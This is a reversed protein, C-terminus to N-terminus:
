LERGCLHAFECFRCTALNDTKEFVFQKTERLTRLWECLMELKTELLNEYVITGNKLDYYGCRSVNGMQQALLYYFELQFDTANEVTKPTYVPFKGSKYDLVELGEMTRDIRDLQGTLSIGEIIASLSVECGAVEAEKFREIENEFFPELRRMWLKRLYADLVTTGSSRELAPVFARLLSEKDGFRSTETYLERLAEHLATGIEHEEPMDKAIEHERLGEAYRYYFKRKCELFSKLGTASLPRSTFDYEAEIEGEECRSRTVPTFLLKAWQVDSHGKETSIGLQSLFRTPVADASEVYSIAVRKARMFLNHYYLKQLAERDQAGPLGAKIRTASNLFLDKESKRPVTGENFDVVIVGDYQVSRTELVGMVTVKGGRVDDITRSKLRNIFLYLASKLNGGILYPLIKEFYFLEEKVISVINGDEEHELLATVLAHFDFTAIDAKYSGTIKEYCEAGIRNIRSSNQVTANDLLTMAAEIQAVFRSKALSIGMAFNFNKETDFRRLHEAFSEDPLVVAIREPEIGAEVFEYVKQKVFAAQLLREGFSECNITAQSSTETSEVIKLGSFDILYSKREETEIGLGRLKDRMKANYRHSEFRLYLPIMSACERLVQMEFNTLYGEAVLEASGLSEIFSRNLTTRKPIFIPDLLKREDCLAEYRRYLEKLIEIHEEYDGYTDAYELSEIGILEGALEEFFRFLYTSNQTFTFFSREIQLNQFHSFDAAELLLLVRTDDDIRVYGEAILARQLFEGMTMYRSLFGSGSSTRLIQERIARSTPLITVREM